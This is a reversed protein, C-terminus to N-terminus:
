EYLSILKLDFNFWLKSIQNLTLFFKKKKKIILCKKEGCLKKEECFFKEGFCIKLLFFDEGLVKKVLLIEYIQKCFVKNVFFFKTELLSKKVFFFHIGRFFNM